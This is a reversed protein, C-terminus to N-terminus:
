TKNNWTSRLLSQPTCNAFVKSHYHTKIHLRRETKRERLLTIENSVTQWCGTLQPGALKLSWGNATCHSSTSLKLAPEPSCPANQTARRLSDMSAKHSCSILCSKPLLHTTSSYHLGEWVKDTHKKIRTLIAEQHGWACEGGRIEWTWTYYSTITKEEDIFLCDHSLTSFYIFLTDNM